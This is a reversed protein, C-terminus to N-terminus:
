GARTSARLRSRLHSRRSAPAHRRAATTRPDAMLIAVTKAATAAKEEAVSDWRGVTDPTMLLALPCMQPATRVTAKPYTRSSAQAAAMAASARSM